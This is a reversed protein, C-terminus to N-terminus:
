LMTYVGKFASDEEAGQYAPGVVAKLLPHLGQDNELGIRQTRFPVIRVRPQNKEGDSVPDTTVIEGRINNPEVHVKQLTVAPNNQAASLVEILEGYKLALTTPERNM